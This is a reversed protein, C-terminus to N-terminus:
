KNEEAVSDMMRENMEEVTLPKGEYPGFFGFLDTIPRTAAHLTFTGDENPIFHIKFGPELGMSKRVALPITVQGKTTMTATPM